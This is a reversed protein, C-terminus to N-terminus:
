PQHIPAPERVIRVHPWRELPRKRALRQEFYAETIQRPNRRLVIGFLDELGLPAVVTLRGDMELRVAVATAPEPWRSVADEISVIPHIAHGFRAEYWLHVAAQNKADWESTLERELAREVDLDRERSLNHPDFFALDIDNSKSRPRGELQDWVIDRIVGAGIVWEPANVRRAAELIALFWGDGLLITRLRAELDRV